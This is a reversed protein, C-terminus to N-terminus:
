KFSTSIVRLKELEAVRSNLELCLISLQDILEDRLITDAGPAASDQMTGMDPRHVCGCNCIRHNGDCVGAIRPNRCKEANQTENM